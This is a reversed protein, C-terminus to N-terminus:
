QGGRLYAETAARVRDQHSKPVEAEQTLAHVGRPRTDVLPMNHKSAYEMAGEERAKALEAQRKEEEKKTRLDKTYSEYALDLPLHKENAHKVVDLTDLVENFEKLHKAQLYNMKGMLTVGDVQIQQLKKDWEANSIGSQAMPQTGEQTQYGSFDGSATMQRLRQNEAVIKDFSEKNNHDALIQSQYFRETEAMKEQLKREDERIKDMNRSYDSRALALEKVRPAVKEHALVQKLTEVQEKPLSSEADKLLEKMYQNLDFDASM